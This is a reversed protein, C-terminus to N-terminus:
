NIITLTPLEEVAIYVDYARGALKALVPVFIAGDTLM